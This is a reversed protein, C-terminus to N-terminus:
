AILSQARSGALGPALRRYVVAAAVLVPIEVALYIAAFWTFERQFGLSAAVALAVAVNRTSFEASFTFQDAHSCGLLWAITGGLVFACGVFAAVLLGASTWGIETRDTASAIVLLLLIALLAFATGQVLPRHRTALAPWRARIAMGAAVPPVIVALLQAALTSAPASYPAAQGLLLDLLATALPITVLAAACSVATLTVSLATSARALVSYANSLGGIPCVVLLLLGAAIMPTPQVLRILVIALPPLLLAPLLVGTVVTGPRERVSRFDRTELDMGVAVLLLVTLVPSAIEVLQQM